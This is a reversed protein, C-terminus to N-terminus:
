NEHFIRYILFGIGWLVLNVWDASCADSRRKLIFYDAIQIAIMPSLCVRDSLPFGKLTRFRPLSPCYFVSLGGCRDGDAKGEAEAIHERRECGSFICGSVDNDGHSVVLILVGAIGLGAQLMINSIQTKELLSPQEGNWHCVDLLQGCFVRAYQGRPGPVTEKADRTSRLDAAAPCRCRRM